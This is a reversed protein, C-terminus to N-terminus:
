GSSEKISPTFHVISHFHISIRTTMMEVTVQESYEPAPFDAAFIKANKGFKTM